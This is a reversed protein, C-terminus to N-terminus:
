VSPGGADHASEAEQLSVYALWREASPLERVVEALSSQTAFQDAVGGNLIANQLLMLDALTRAGYREAIDTFTESANQLEWFFQKAGEVSAPRAQADPADAQALSQDVLRAHAVGRQYASREAFTALDDPWDPLGHGLASGRVGALLAPQARLAGISPIADADAPLVGAHRAAEERNALETVLPLYGSGIRWMNHRFVEKETWAKMEAYTGYVNDAIDGNRWEEAKFRGDGENRILFGSETEADYHFSQYEDTAPIEHDGSLTWVADSFAKSVAAAIPEPAGERRTLGHTAARKLTDAVSYGPATNAHNVSGIVLRELCDRAEEGAPLDFSVVTDNDDQPGLPRHTPYVGMHPREANDAIYWGLYVPRSMAREASSVAVRQGIGEAIKAGPAMLNGTVPAARGDDVTRENIGIAAKVAQLVAAAHEGTPLADANIGAQLTAIREADPDIGLTTLATAIAEGSLTKQNPRTSMMLDVTELAIRSVTFAVFFLGPM